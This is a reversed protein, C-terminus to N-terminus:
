GAAIFNNLEDNQSILRANSWREASGETGAAQCDFGASGFDEFVTFKWLQRPVRHDDADFSRDLSKAIPAFSIM